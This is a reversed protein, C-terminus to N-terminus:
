KDYKTLNTLIRDKDFQLNHFNVKTKVKGMHEKRWNKRSERFCYLNSINHEDQEIFESSFKWLNANEVKYLKTKNKKEQLNQNLLDSLKIKM